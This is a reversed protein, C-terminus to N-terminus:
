RINILEVGGYSGNGPCATARLRGHLRGTGGGAEELLLRRQRVLEMIVGTELPGQPTLWVSVAM